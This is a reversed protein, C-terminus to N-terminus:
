RSTQTEPHAASTPPDAPYDLFEREAQLWRAFDAARDWANQSALEDARRAVRLQLAVLEDDAFPPANEIESQSANM